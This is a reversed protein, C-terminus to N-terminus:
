VKFVFQAQLCAASWAQWLNQWNHSERFELLAWAGMPMQLLDWMFESYQLNWFFFGEQIARAIAQAIREADLQM